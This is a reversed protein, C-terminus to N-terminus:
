TNNEMRAGPRFFMGLQLSQAINDARSIFALAAEAPCVESVTKRFLSLWREFHAPRVAKLRMHATMPSGKYRGSTLMVSSWFDCMKALHVDWKDGIVDEFVPGIFPDQRVKAYFTHVVTQVMEEDVGTRGVFAQVAQQRINSGSTSPMSECM